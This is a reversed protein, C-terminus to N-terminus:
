REETLRTGPAVPSGRTFLFGEALDQLGALEAGQLPLTRLRLFPIHAITPISYSPGVTVESCIVTCM